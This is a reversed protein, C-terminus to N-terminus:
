KTDTVGRNHDKFGHGYVFLHASESTNASAMLKQRGAAVGAQWDSFQAAANSSPAPAPAVAAQMLPESLTMSKAVQMKELASPTLVAPRANAQPFSGSDLARPQDAARMSRAPVAIGVEGNEAMRKLDSVLLAGDPKFQADSPTNPIWLKSPSPFAYHGHGNDGAMHTKAHEAPLPSAQSARKEAAFAELAEREKAFPVRSPAEGLRPQKPADLSDLSRNSLGQAPQHHKGHSHAAENRGNGGGPEQPGLITKVLFLILAKLQEKDATSTPKADSTSGDTLIQVLKAVAEDVVQDRQKQESRDLKSERPPELLMMQVGTPANSSIANM